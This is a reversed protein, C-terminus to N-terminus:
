RKRQNRSNPYLISLTYFKPTNIVSPTRQAEQIESKLDMLKLCNKAIMEQSTEESDKKEEPM